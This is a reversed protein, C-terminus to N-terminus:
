KKLKHYWELFDEIQKQVKLKNSPTNPNIWQIRYITYGHQSLIADREKDHEKRDEYNHQKGDIELDINGPLLFDLFFNSLSDIGLDSKKLVYEEQYPINNNDLVEKWFKEAYSKTNRSKWGQHKGETILTQQIKRSQESRSSFSKKATFLVDKGFDALIDERTKGHKKTHWGLVNVRVGCYPCYVFDIGEKADIKYFELQSVTILKNEILSKTEPVYDDLNITSSKPSNSVPLMPLTPNIEVTPVFSPVKWEPKEKREKTQSRFKESGQRWNACHLSCFRGAGYFETMIKGCRECQHQEAIWRRLRVPSNKTKRSITGDDERKKNAENMADCAKKRLLCVKEYREDGLHIRCFSQHGCFAQRTHFVKGCECTYIKTNEKDMFDCGILFLFETFLKGKVSNQPFGAM